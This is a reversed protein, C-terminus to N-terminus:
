TLSLSMSDSASGASAGGWGDRLDFSTSLEGVDNIKRDAGRVLQSDSLRRHEAGAAGEKLTVKLASFDVGGLLVGIPPMIIDDVLSKVVTGVGAGIVIGTAMDVFNSKLAFDRFESLMGM